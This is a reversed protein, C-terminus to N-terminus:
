SRKKKYILAVTRLDLGKSYPAVLTKGYERFVIDLGTVLWRVIQLMSEDDSLEGNSRDPFPADFEVQASRQGYKSKEILKLIAQAVVREEKNKRPLAERIINAVEMLLEKM